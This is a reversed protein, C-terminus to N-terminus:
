EGFCAILSDPLLFIPSVHVQLDKMRRAVKERLCFSLRRPQGEGGPLPLGSPTPSPNEPM